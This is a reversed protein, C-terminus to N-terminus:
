PFNAMVPDSTDGATASHEKRLVCLREGQVLFKLMFHLPGLPFFVWRSLAEDKAPHGMILIQAM